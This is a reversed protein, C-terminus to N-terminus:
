SNMDDDPDDTILGSLYDETTRPKPRAGATMPDTNTEAMDVIRCDACMKLRRLAQENPFMSHAAMKESVTEIMSKTAFPTGCRICDFPEEEKIVRTNRAAGTLLLRPRLKIVKEPCTSVCLGCQVCATEVFNLRPYDPTDRLANTPCANTCALCLTCGDVDIDVTGFPAGDPLPIEKLPEPAVRHLATLALNLAGRKEETPEFAAARLHDGDAAAKGDAAAWLHANAAEPDAQSMMEARGDGFGLAAVIHNSLAITESLGALEETMRPPALILCRAAGYVRAALLTDLGCQGLANVAIPLVNAPLGDYHRAMADVMDEGFDGDHFLLIPHKGAGAEYAQLLTRMRQLLADRRPMAYSVAGTPCVGACAGCGACIQPDIIVKDGEATIAGAPCIDICRTCGTIGNRAHACITDDYEVYRPKEFEGVLDLIDFLVAAVGAPDKPDPNFYGDRKEPASFMPTGGRLDLIIDCNSRTTDSAAPAFSIEQRSSPTMPAFGDIEVEFAGLHGRARISTASFIPVDVLRPPTVAARHDLILTVDLRQGLRRAAESAADDNGIVMVAGGSSVPIAHPGPIDLMAEAILAGMKAGAAGGDRSWGAKERINVFRIDGDFQDDDATELFLPAEQTCGILLPGKGALRSQVEPLQRRCLQTGCFELKLGAAKEISNPDNPSTGECDCILVRFDSQSKENAM